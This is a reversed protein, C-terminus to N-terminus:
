TPEGTQLPTVRKRRRLWMAMGVAFLAISIAAFATADWAGGREAAPGRFADFAREAYHWLTPILVLLLFALATIRGLLWIATFTRLVGLHRPDFTGARQGLLGFSVRHLRDRLYHRAEDDLDPHGFHTCLVYYVDTKLFINFQWTISIAIQLIWARLLHTLFGDEGGALLWRLSLTILAISLLDTMMGALLPLYRQRRPLSLIGTLDAEAVIQWLRNGVGLRSRIGYRAAAAMHGFEHLSASVAYLGLLAVLTLTLHDELFFAGFDLRLRPDAIASAAAAGLLALYLAFTPWSFLARAVGTPLSFRLRRDGAEAEAITAAFRDREAAPLVFGIEHLTGIFDDVDVDDFGDDHLRARIDDASLGERLLAIIRVGEEPFHYFADLERNGVCYVEGERQVSLPIVFWPSADSTSSAISM